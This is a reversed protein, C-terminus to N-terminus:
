SDGTGTGTETESETVTETKSAVTEPEQDAADRARAAATTRVSRFEARMLHLVDRAPVEFRAAIANALDPLAGEFTDLLGAALRVMEAKVATTETFRGKRKEEEEAAKRSMIRAQLLKEQKLQDEVSPGQEEPAQWSRLPLESGAPHDPAAPAKLRTDLGNGMMQGADLKMRLQALATQVRVRARRGEGDLATGSLKGESIYQSVRGPSVGILEAFDKKPLTEPVPADV